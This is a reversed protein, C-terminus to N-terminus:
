DALNVAAFSDRSCKKGGLGFDAEHRGEDDPEFHIFM